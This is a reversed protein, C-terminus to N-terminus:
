QVDIYSATYNSSLYVDLATVWGKHLVMIIAYSM